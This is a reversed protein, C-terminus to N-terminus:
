KQMKYITGTESQDQNQIIKGVHESLDNMVKDAPQKKTKAARATTSQIVAGHKNPATDVPAESIILQNQQPQLFTIALARLRTMM